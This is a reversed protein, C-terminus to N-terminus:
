RDHEPHHYNEDSRGERGVIERVHFEPAPRLEDVEHIVANEAEENLAGGTVLGTEGEQRAVGIEEADKKSDQIACRVFKM